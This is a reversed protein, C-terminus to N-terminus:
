LNIYNNILAVGNSHSKEPHFQVGFINSGNTIACAFQKHYLSEAMVVEENQASFYYSHLFYFGVDLDVNCLLSNEIKSFSSIISNWGMHPLKIDTNNTEIKKVIGPIFNFGSCVGEESATAMVQMGVCIGLIYKKEFQVSNVITDYLDMKKLNTILCDFHGVGPLILKDANLIDKAKTAIMYEANLISLIRELAYLNGSGSDIVAIM